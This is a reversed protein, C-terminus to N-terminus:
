LKLKNQHLDQLIVDIELDLVGICKKNNKLNILDLHLRIFDSLVM